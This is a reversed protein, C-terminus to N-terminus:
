FVRRERLEGLDRGMAVCTGIDRRAIKPRVPLQWLHAIGARCAALIRRRYSTSPAQVRLRGAGRSRRQSAAQQRLERARQDALALSLDPHM